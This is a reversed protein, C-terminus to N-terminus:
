EKGTKASSIAQAVLARLYASRSTDGRIADLGEILEPTLAVSVQHERGAAETSLRPYRGAGERKGGHQPKKIKPM